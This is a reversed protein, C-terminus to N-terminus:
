ECSNHSSGKMRSLTLHDDCRKSALVADNIARVHVGYIGLCLEMIM